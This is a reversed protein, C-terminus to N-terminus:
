RAARVTYRFSNPSSMESRPSSVVALLDRDDLRVNRRSSVNMQCMLSLNEMLWYGPYAMPLPLTEIDRTNIRRHQHEHEHQHEKGWKWYKCTSCCETVGCGTNLLWWTRIGHDSSKNNAECCLQHWISRGSGSRGALVVPSRSVSESLCPMLGPLADRVRAAPRQTGRLRDGESLGRARDGQEIGGQEMGGRKTTSRHGESRDM